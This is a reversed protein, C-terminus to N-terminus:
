SPSAAPEVHPSGKGFLYLNVRAMGLISNKGKPTGLSPIMVLDKFAYRGTRQVTVPEIFFLLARIRSRSKLWMPDM